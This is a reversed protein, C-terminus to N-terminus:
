PLKISSGFNRGTIKTREIYATHRGPSPNSSNEKSEEDNYNTTKM